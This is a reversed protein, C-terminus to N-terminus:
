SPPTEICDRKRYIELALHGPARASGCERVEWLDGISAQGPLSTLREATQFQSISASSINRTPELIRCGPQLKPLDNTTSSSLSDQSSVSGAELENMTSIEEAELRSLVLIDQELQAVALNTPVLDAELPLIEPQLSLLQFRLKDSLNSKVKGLLYQFSSNNVCHSPAFRSRDQQFSLCLSAITSMHEHHQRLMLKKEKELTTVRETPSADEPHMRLHDKRISADHRKREDEQPSQHLPVYGNRSKKHQPSKHPQRSSQKRKLQFEQESTRTANPLSSIIPLVLLFILFNGVIISLAKYLM